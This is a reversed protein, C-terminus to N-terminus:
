LKGLITYAKLLIKLNSAIQSLTGPLVVPKCIM